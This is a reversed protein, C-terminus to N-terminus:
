LAARVRALIQAADREIRALEAAQEGITTQDHMYRHNIRVNYGCAAAAAYAFEAACGVDSALAGRPAEILRGTLRLVELALGAAHLPAQAAERLAGELADRRLAREADTQKPLAQASIVAAYAAEDRRRAASLDERLRDAREVLGDIPPTLIRGVMAALAAAVAGTLAAASGGGPVPDSSALRQLYDDIADV